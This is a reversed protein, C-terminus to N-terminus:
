TFEYYTCTVLTFVDDPYDSRFVDNLQCNMVDDAPVYYNVSVCGVDNVCATICEIISRVSIDQLVHGHVCTNQTDHDVEESTGEYQFEYDETWEIECIHYPNSTCSYSYWDMDQPRLVACDNTDDFTSSDSWIEFGNQARGSSSTGWVYTGETVIDNYGIYYYHNSSSYAHAAAVVVDMEYQSTISALEMGMENCNTRAEDYTLTKPVVLYRRLEWISTDTTANLDAECVSARFHSCSIDYYCDLDSWYETCYESGGSPESPCWSSLTSATGTRAWKFVDGERRNGIYVGKYKSTIILTRELLSEVVKEEEVTDYSVLDGGLQQCTERAKDYPMPTPNIYYKEDHWPIWPIEDECIIGYIGTCSEDYWQGDSLSLLACASALNSEGVAWNSYGRPSSDPWSWVASSDSVYGIYFKRKSNHTKEIMNVLFANEENSTIVALYGGIDACVNVGDNATMRYDTAFYRKNNYYEWEIGKECISPYLTATTIDNWKLTNYKLTVGDGDGYPEGSDWNTYTTVEGSQPWEFSGESRVDDYGIWWYSSSRKSNGIAILWDNETVDGVVALHAGVDECSSQAYGWKSNITNFLYMSYGRPYWQRPTIDMECIAVYNNTCPIDNWNANSSKYIITCDETGGNPEGSAWRTYSTSTKDEDDWMFTGETLRDNYGILRNRSSPEETALYYSEDYNIVVPLYGKQVRCMSQGENYSASTSVTKYCRGVAFSWGEQCVDM